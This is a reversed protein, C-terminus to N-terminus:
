SPIDKDLIDSKTKCKRWKMEQKLLNFTGWGLPSRTVVTQLDKYDFRILYWRDVVAGTLAPISSFHASIQGLYTYRDACWGQLFSCQDPTYWHM